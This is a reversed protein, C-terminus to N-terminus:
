NEKILPIEIIIQLGGCTKNKAYVKGSMSKTVINNVISLGIGSGMNTKNRATDSRYFVEFIHEISEQAIGPGDDSVALVCINEKAELSIEVHCVPKDSYKGSNDILNTLMRSLLSKDASIVANDCKNLSLQIKKLAYDSDNENIFEELYAKLNLKENVPAFDEYELKSYILIESVVNEIQQTKLKITNLYRQQVQPTSAIGSEIGEVYAKISTLPSFIDHSINMIIEKRMQEQKQTEEISERLKDTMLNFKQCIPSFEDNRDYNIRYDLNGNSIKDVGDSLIKLSYEVRDFIAKYFFKSLIHIIIIVIIIFFLNTFLWSIYFTSNKERLTINRTVGTVLIEYTNGDNHIIGKFVINGDIVLFNKESETSFSSFIKEFNLPKKSGETSYIIKKNKYVEAYVIGEEHPYPYIDLINEDGSKELQNKYEDYLFNSAQYAYSVNEPKDFYETLTSYDGKVFFLYIFLICIAALFMPIFLMLSNVLRLKGGITLNKFKNMLAKNKFSM